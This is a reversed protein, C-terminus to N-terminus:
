IAAAPVHEAEHEIGVHSRVFFFGLAAALVQFFVAVVMGVHIAHVFANQVSVLIAQAQPQTIGPVAHLIQAVSGGGAAFANGGREAIAAAMGKPFGSTLLNSQFARNFAGTVVAGLLAIGFVGGIERSTNTAASAVGAHQPPVSAMVAATMPTMTMSMGTALVLFAPLLVGFYSSDVQTRTLLLM